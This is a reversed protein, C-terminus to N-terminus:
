ACINKRDHKGAIVIIGRRTLSKLFELVGLRAEHFSLHNTASFQEIIREISNIGDCAAWVQCGLPDLEVARHTRFPFIWTFPASTYWKKRIPVRLVIRDEGETTSTLEANRIPIAALLEDLSLRKDPNLVIGM